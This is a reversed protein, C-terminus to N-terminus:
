GRTEERWLQLAPAFVSSQLAIEVEDGSRVRFRYADVYRGDRLWSEEGLEGAVARGTPSLSQLKVTRLELAFPGTDGPDESSVLITYPLDWGPRFRLVAGFLSDGAAGRELTRQQRIEGAPGLLTIRPEFAPSVVDLVVPEDPDVLLAYAQEYRGARLQGGGLSDARLADEARLTDADARPSASVEYAGLAEPSASTVAIEFVGPGQLGVVEARTDTGLLSSAALRRGEQTRVSLDPRFDASTAVVAFDVSDELTYTLFDVYRGAATEADGPELTGTAFATGNPLPALPLPAQRRAAAWATRAAAAQQAIQDDSPPPEGGAWVGWAVVAAVVVLAAALLGKGWVPLAMWRARLGDTLDPEEDQRWAVARSPAAARTSDPAVPRPLSEPPSEAPVSM